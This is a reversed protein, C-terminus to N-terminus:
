SSPPARHDAKARLRLQFGPGQVLQPRGAAVLALAPVAPVAATLQLLAPAPGAAVWPGRVKAQDLLVNLTAGMVAPDKDCLTRRFHEGLHSVSGEDLQLCRHLAMVAKKRVIESRGRTLHPVAPLFPGAALWARM